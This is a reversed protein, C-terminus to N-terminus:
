GLHIGSDDFLDSNSMVDRSKHRLSIVAFAVIGLSYPRWPKSECTAAVIPSSTEPTTTGSPFQFFPCTTPPKLWGTQFIHLWDFQILNPDNKGLIPTFMVNLFYKFGGGLFVTTKVLLVKKLHVNSRPLASWNCSFYSPVCITGFFCPDDFLDHQNVQNFFRM